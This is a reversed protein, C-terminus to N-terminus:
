SEIIEDDEGDGSHDRQQPRRKKILWKFGISELLHIREETLPSQKGEIKHLYDTRNKNVRTGLSVNHYRSVRCHGHDEKYHKL